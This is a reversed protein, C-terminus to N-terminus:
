RADNRLAVRTYVSDVAYTISGDAQRFPQASQARLTFAVQAVQKVNATVAGSSDYYTFTVGPVTATNYLPGILPQVTGGGQILGLYYKGDSAQYLEFTEPLFVRVPAGRRIAGASDLAGVGTFNGNAVIAYGPASGAAAPCSWNAPIANFSAPVWRDDARTTNVGDDYVLLSDETLSIGTMSVTGFLLSAFATFNMAGSGSTLAPPDCVFALGQMSRFAISTASMSYIDGDTADIQRLESPIIIAGARINQQLDIHQTQALYIRQNNVLVRYIGLSVIGLLVLAVMLEALTFGRRTLQPM